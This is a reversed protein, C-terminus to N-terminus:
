LAQQRMYRRAPWSLRGVHNRQSAFHMFCIADIVPHLGSTLHTAEYLLLTGGQGEIGSGLLMKWKQNPSGQQIIYPDRFGTLKMNDPPHPIIPEEQKHWRILDKDGTIAAVTSTMMILLAHKSAVVLHIKLQRLWGCSHEEDPSPFPYLALISTISNGIM